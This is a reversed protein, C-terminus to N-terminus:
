PRTRRPLDAPLNVRISPGAEAPQRLPEVRRRAPQPQQPVAQVQQRAPQPQQRVPRVQQRAPQPQQRVPRAPKQTPEDARRAQLIRRVTLGVVATTVSIAAGTVLRNSGDTGATLGHITAVVFLPFSAFHVARWVRKSLQKRALSTLEVALLLYFGVVGWAVAAPHWTSAFPVLVESPGFKVNKDLLLAGVHVATFIVAAGGLFRHLDLMWNPRITGRFSKTSLALGWLVSASLLVWSVLGGSRAVYWWLQTAIM